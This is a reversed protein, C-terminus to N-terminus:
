VASNPASRARRSTLDDLRSRRAGHRSPRSKRSASGRWSKYGGPNCSGPCNGAMTPVQMVYEPSLGVGVIALSVRRGSVVAAISDGPGLHNSEAFAESVLVEGTRDAEIHRGRRIYVGNVAHTPTDPISLLVASAPEVLGPVDIIVQSSIRADVATVGSIDGIDRAVSLPARGLSSWTDAFRQQAYYHDESLRLSRYTTMTAIFLAVGSAVVLAIATVQAVMRRLDRFLKRDLAEVSLL